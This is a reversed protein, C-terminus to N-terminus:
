VLNFLKNLVKEADNVSNSYHPSLRLYNGRASITIGENKLNAALEKYSNIGRVSFTIIGLRQQEAKPTIITISKKQELHSYLNEILHLIQRTINDEGIENMLKLSAGLGAIGLLNPTGTELHPSVPLWTQEYDSMEWPNEVSLWGTKYPRMQPQIKPSLYLFGVGMPGMLWKHGGSSIADIGTKQVNIRTAGLAQIGDVVFFINHKKCLNGIAELDARFGSLFQVASISILKTRPTIASEIDEIEIRHHQHPLYNIVVGQEKLRRYPHVNAPFEMTNLIIEDGKQWNLGNAVASIGDSTNGTFTIHDTSPANIYRAIRNRADEIISQGRDFDGVTGQQRLSICNEISERVPTSFPSIAAHNMYVQNESHHPYLQRIDQLESNSFPSRSM